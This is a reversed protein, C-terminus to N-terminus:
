DAYTGYGGGKDNMDNKAAAYGWVYGIIMAVTVLALTTLVQEHNM